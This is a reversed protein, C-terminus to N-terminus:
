RFVACIRIAQLIRDFVTQISQTYCRAERTREGNTVLNEVEQAPNIGIPRRPLCDRKSRRPCPVQAESETALAVRNSRSFVVVFSPLTGALGRLLPCSRPCIM